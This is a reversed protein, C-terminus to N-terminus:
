RRTLVADEDGDSRRRPNASIESVAPFGGGGM